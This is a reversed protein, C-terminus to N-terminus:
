CLSYYSFIKLNEEDWSVMVVNAKRSAVLEQGLQVPDTMIPQVMEEEACHATPMVVGTVWNSAAACNLLSLIIQFVSRVRFIAGAMAGTRPGGDYARKRRADKLRM